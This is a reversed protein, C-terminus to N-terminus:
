KAEGLKQLAEGDVRCVQWEPLIRAGLSRYFDQARVNWDLVTWEFRGCGRAVALQALRELFLRGIGNGRREPLVFVDELYLSPRALFTSYTTFFLAYGVLARANDAADEAVLLEFRDGRAFDSALRAAAADDPGALKEFTALARILAVVGPIDRAEAPRITCEIRDHEM